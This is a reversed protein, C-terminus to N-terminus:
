AEVTLDDCDRRRTTTIDRADHAVVGVFSDVKGDFLGVGVFHTVDNVVRSDIITPAIELLQSYDSFGLSM